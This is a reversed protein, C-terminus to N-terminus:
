DGKKCSCSKDTPMIDITKDKKDKKDGNDSHGNAWKQVGEEWQKFQPDKEPDKPEPGLPDTRDVYYLICHANSVTVKKTCKDPCNDEALLGTKEDIRVEQQEGLKGNLMPKNPPFIDPPSPFETKPFTALVQKMYTNWIPGATFVGEGQNTPSSDNNGSWVGTVIDPTYGLLWGDRFEQTTGSKAAVKYGDVYLASHGGFIKTRASNDSLVDNMTRAVNTAVVRRGQDTKEYITKGSSDEIRLVAQPDFRVGDNAFVGYASTEDLLTVGGGGLVLALGYNNSSKLTVIGMSRAFNVTDDVGALYLTKVAPINLSNDLAERMSIPGNFKGNFNQPTYDQNGVKFNTKVDFLMTNPTYGKSFAVAYAFPKFSSGPQRLSTAVNVNGDRTTDFYDRSGVMSLIEGNKPDISVLAANKANYSKENKVAGESVAQEAWQQKQFDLTTFVKFGGQQVVDEGYKNALWDKVYMVFHPALINSRLPRVDQFIDEQKAADAEQQSIYGLEAMRGLVWEQRQKLNDTHTGYPSYYTPAQPLAALFSSEALDLSAANKGFFTQAAAEVGYANSGYPIENLYMELIENKSFKQELELSLIAEKIKRTFTKQRDLISNKILQQTITSAGQQKSQGMIDSLAARAIAKFDLGHHNYFGADEAAVTADKIQQPMQDFSIATRNEEGHIEYLVVQGTRDLIKTSEAVHRESLKSPSPLDKTFYALVAVVALVFGAGVWLTFGLVDQSIKKRGEKTKMQFFFYRFPHIYRNPPKLEQENENILRKLRNQSYRMSELNLIM